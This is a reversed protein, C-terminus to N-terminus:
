RNREYNINLTKIALRAVTLNEDNALMELVEPPTLPNQAVAQCVFEERDSALIKLVEASM